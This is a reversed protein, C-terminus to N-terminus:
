NPTLIHFECIKTKLVRRFYQLAHLKAVFLSKKSGISKKSSGVRNQMKELFFGSSKSLFFNPIKEADELILIPCDLKDKGLYTFNM